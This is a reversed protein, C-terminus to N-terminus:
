KRPTERKFRSLGIDDFLDIPVSSHWNIISGKPVHRYRYYEPLEARIQYTVKDWGHDFWIQIAHVNLEKLLVIMEERSLGAKEVLQRASFRALGEADNALHLLKAILSPPLQLDTIPTSNVFDDSYIDLMTSPAAANETVPNIPEPPAVPSPAPPTRGRPGRVAKPHMEANNNIHWPPSQALVRSASEQEFVALGSETPEAFEELPPSIEPEDPAEGLLFSYFNLPALPPRSDLNQIRYATEELMERHLERMFEARLRSRIEEVNVEKLMVLRIFRALNEDTSPPTEDLISEDVVVAEVPSLGGVFTPLLRIARNLFVKPTVASFHKQRIAELKRRLDVDNRLARTDVSKAAPIEKLNELFFRFRAEVQEVPMNAVHVMLHREFGSYGPAAPYGVRESGFYFDLVTRAIRAMPEVPERTRPIIAVQVGRPSDALVLQFHGFINHIYYDRLVRQKKRLPTECISAASAPGAMVALSLIFLIQTM